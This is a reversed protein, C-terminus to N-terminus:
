LVKIRENREADLNQQLQQIQRHCHNHDLYQSKVREDSQVEMFEIRKSLLTIEELLESNPSTQSANKLNQKLIKEM